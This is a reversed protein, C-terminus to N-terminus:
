KGAGETDSEKDNAAAREAPATEAAPKAVGGGVKSANHEKLRQLVIPLEQPAFRVSMSFDFAAPPTYSCHETDDDFIETVLAYDIPSCSYEWNPLPGPPDFECKIRWYLKDDGEGEEYRAVINLFSNIYGMGPFCLWIRGHTNQQCSMLTDIDAIWLEKILPAIGEDVPAVQWRYRVTVQRHPEVYLPCGIAKELKARTEDDPLDGQELKTVDSLSLGARDALESSSSIGAYGCLSALTKAFHTKM